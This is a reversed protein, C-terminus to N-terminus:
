KCSTNGLIKEMLTQASQQWSLWAMGDSQPAEGSRDLSLWDSIADALKLASGGSFFFAHKGAIERFVPIDRAIIPLGKQAAEILPLGFGEAESAALLCTARAYIIELYEDSIGALWFLRHGREPHTNLAEILIEVQWGPKGVLVLNVDVGRRWLVDFAELAQAVGKRPEVTGVVLFTPRKQLAELTEQADEPLGRTPASAAVDAGLHFAEIRVANGPMHEDIWAKLESAVAKSICAVSDSTQLLAKLWRDHVAAAQQPFVEPRLVPLLDYIVFHSVTGGARMKEFFGQEAAKIIYPWSFDLGLFHDDPRIDVIEDHLSDDQVGLLNLAYRRAYRLELTAERDCFYVPEIRFGPPPSKILEILLARVVRQIGTRLDSRHIASVDVLLQRASLLPPLDLAVTNSLAALTEWNQHATEPLEAVHAAAEKWTGALGSYFDSELIRRYAEACARPSHYQAIAKAAHHSIANRMDPDRYLSTLADAIDQVSCVAPLAHVADADLEAMAGTRNIITPVGHSMCDLVAASTEGRDVTRLQIAVDAANLYQRYTSDTVWGTILIRSASDGVCTIAADIEDGYDGGQNAGVFVLRTVGGVADDMKQWAEIIELNAKARGTLGFCCVMFCEPALNLMQRAAARREDRGEYPVPNRLLPVHRFKRSISPPLWESALGAARHSHVIVGRADRLFKFNVPYHALLEHIKESRGADVLAGYGHSEYYSRRWQPNNASFSQAWLLDGLYFDHLVVAGPIRECLPIMFSHFHSNGLHYLVRDFDESHDEFWSATRVSCGPPLSSGDVEPQEVIVDIEYDQMLAAILDASYAAIGSRAPPLPSVYALRPRGALVPGIPRTRVAARARQVEDIMAKALAPLSGSLIHGSDEQLIGAKDGADIANSVDVFSEPPHAERARRYLAVEPVSCEVTGLKTSLLFTVHAERALDFEHREPHGPDAAPEAFVVADAEMQALRQMYLISNTQACWDDGGALRSMGRVAIKISRFAELRSRMQLRLETNEAHVLLSVAGKSGELEKAIALALEFIRNGAASEGGAEAQFTDSWLNFVFHM